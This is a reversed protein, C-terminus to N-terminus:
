SRDPVLDILIFCEEGERLMQVDELEWRAVAGRAEEFEELEAGILLDLLNEPSLKLTLTDIPM